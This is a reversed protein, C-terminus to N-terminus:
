KVFRLSKTPLLPKSVLKKKKENTIYQLTLTSDSWFHSDVIPLDIEKIILRRYLRVAVTAASLELRLLTTPKTPAVRGKAVVFSVECPETCTRLYAVAGYAKESADGFIHLQLKSTISVNYCRPLNFMNITTLGVICSEWRSQIEQSVPDDWQVGERWVEQMIM